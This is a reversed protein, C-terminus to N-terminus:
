NKAVRPKTCVWGGMMVEDSQSPAPSTKVTEAPWVSVEDLAAM